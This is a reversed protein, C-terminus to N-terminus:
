SLLCRIQRDMTELQGIENRDITCKGYILMALWSCKNHENQNQKIYYNALSRSSLVKRPLHKTCHKEFSQSQVKRNQTLPTM